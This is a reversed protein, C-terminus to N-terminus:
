LQVFYLFEGNIIMRNRSLRLFEGNQLSGLLNARINLTIRIGIFSPFHCSFYLQRHSLCPAHQQIRTVFIVFPAMILIDYIDIAVDM